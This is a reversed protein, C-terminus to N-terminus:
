LVIRFGTEIHYGDDSGVAIGPRVYLGSLNPLSFGFGIYMRQESKTRTGSVIKNADWNSFFSSWGTTKAKDFIIGNVVFLNISKTKLISLEGTVSLQAKQISGYSNGISFERSFITNDFKSYGIRINLKTGFKRGFELGFGTDNNSSNVYNYNIGISYKEAQGIAFDSSLLIVSM